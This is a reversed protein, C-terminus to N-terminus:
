ELLPKKRVPATTFDHSFNWEHRHQNRYLYKDSRPDYLNLSIELTVRYAHNLTDEQVEVRFNDSDSLIETALSRVLDQMQYEIIDVEDMRQLEIIDKQMSSTLRLTRDAM